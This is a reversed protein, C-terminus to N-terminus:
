QETSLSLYNRVCPRVYALVYTGSKGSGERKPPTQEPVGSELWDPVTLIRALSRVRVYTRIMEAEGRIRVYKLKRAVDNAEGPRTRVRVRTNTL